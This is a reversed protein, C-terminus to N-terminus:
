RQRGDGAVGADVVRADLVDVEAQGFGGADSVGAGDHGDGVGGVFALLDDEGDAGGAAEVGQLRDAPCEGGEGGFGTEGAVVQVVHGAVLEGGPFRPRR